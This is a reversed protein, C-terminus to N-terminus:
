SIIIFDITQIFHSIEDNNCIFQYNEICEFNPFFIYDCQFDNDVFDFCFYIIFVHFIIM